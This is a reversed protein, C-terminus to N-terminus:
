AFLRYVAFIEESIYKENFFALLDLLQVEHGDETTQSQLQQYSLDWTTFVSLSTEQSSTGLTKRYQSLQPTNRLIAERRRKYHDMFDCLPLKKKKIYAAAQTIALPHYGLREVIKKADESNLESSESQRLLLNLANREELGPLQIFNMSRGIVLASSDEHRSTVLIAGLRGPPIFDKINPFDIPNDYNDFVMLWKEPWSTFSRLVFRTRAKIDPFNDAPAKICESIFQFSAEVTSESMAGVWFITPFTAGTKRHCYELAVQTKGQGGMGQVVVIQPGPGTSFLRDIRSLIDERGVLM